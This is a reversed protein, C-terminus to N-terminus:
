SSGELGGGNSRVRAEQSAAVDAEAAAACQPSQKLPTVDEIFASPGRREGEGSARRHSAKNADLGDWGAFRECSSFCFLSFTSLISLPALKAYLSRFLRCASPPATNTHKINVM